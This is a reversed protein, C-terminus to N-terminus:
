TQKLASTVALVSLAALVHKLTHGSVLHHTLEFIRSDAIEFLKALAYIALFATWNPGAGRAPSRLTAMVLAIGGFQVLAYPTLSGSFAWWAVSAPGALLAFVLSAYGARETIRHAAAMGLVGAFVVVMGLRDVVLGADDPALHYYTSGVATALFGLFFVAASARLANSFFVLRRTAMMFAGYLGMGLFGLNSLSDAARPVGLLARTDAFHHYAQDQPIAPLLAATVLLLLAGCTLLKENKSLSNM